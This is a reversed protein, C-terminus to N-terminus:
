YFNMLTILLLVGTIIPWYLVKVYLNDKADIFPINVHSAFVISNLSVSLIALYLILYFYELYIVSDTPIKARLSSHSIILVFFLSACYALVGSSNFGFQNKKEEMTTISLVVFLLIAVVMIPLLDSVFPSKLDRKVDVNFYLESVNTHKFGKVGFNINYSNVRYSYFTKQPEWGELVLSRELGPLTEPTLNDYSNFDPILVSEESANNWFKIWIDEEDFPYRSYDFQQRLTTKFYWSIIGRDADVYAKEITTEKSEPFSFSPSTKEAVLGSINQWIYGTMTVDNATSFELSQILVGTPVRPTKPDTDYHLLVTEVDAMDFVVIDENRDELSSESLTIHWVTGMGVICLFSFILALMWLSRDDYRYLSVFLVSLFFLFAFTALIFRIVSCNQEIKKDLLVEEKPLVVGVTWNTTWNISSINEYFVWSSKGTKNSIISDDTLDDTKNKSIKEYILRLNNRDEERNKERNEKALEHINGFLYEQIPYSIIVGEQSLVFGYGTNGLKLKGVQERVGELSHSACVVGAAESGNKFEPLYFPASYDIQYVGDAIGFYPSNWGACGSKMPNCYWAATEESSNAYDYPLTSSVDLDSGNRKCHIVTRNGKHVDPSYAVAISFINPNKEMEARLYKDLTSDNLKGSSLNRAVGKTFLRTSNLESSINKSANCATKNAEEGARELIKDDTNNSKYEYGAYVM